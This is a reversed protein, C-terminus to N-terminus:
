AVPRVGTSSPENRVINHEFGVKGLRPLLNLSAGFTMPVGLLADPAEGPGYNKYLHKIIDASQDAFKTHSVPDARACM